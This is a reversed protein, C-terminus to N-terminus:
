RYWQSSTHIRITKEHNKMLLIQIVKVSDPAFSPRLAFEKPLKLKCADLEKLIRDVEELPIDEDYVWEFHAYRTGIKSTRGKPYISCHFDAESVLKCFKKNKLLLENLHNMETAAKIGPENIITTADIREKPLMTVATLIKMISRDDVDGAKAIARSADHGADIFKNIVPVLQADRIMGNIDSCRKPWEDAFNGGPANHADIMDYDFSKIDFDNDLLSELTKM